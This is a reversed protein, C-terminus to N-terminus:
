SEPQESFRVEKKVDFKFLFSVPGFLPKVVKYHITVCYAQSNKQTVQIQNAPIDIGKVRLQSQLTKKLFITHSDPHGRFQKKPLTELTGVAQSLAYYNIYVPVIKMMSVSVFLILALSMMTRILGIGEQRM